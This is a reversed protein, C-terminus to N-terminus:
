RRRADAVGTGSFRELPAQFGGGVNRLVENPQMAGPSPNESVVRGFATDSDPARVIVTVRPGTRGGM